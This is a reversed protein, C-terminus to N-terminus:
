GKVEVILIGFDPHALLFDTEGDRAGSQTDRIQWWVSHFVVYDDPLQRKWAEFLRLEAQSRTDPHPQNPIMRAM